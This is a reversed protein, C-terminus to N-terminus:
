KEIRPPARFAITFFFLAIAIALVM